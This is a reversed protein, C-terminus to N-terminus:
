CVAKSAGCQHITEARFHGYGIQGLDASEPGAVALDRAPFTNERGPFRSGRDVIQDLPSGKPEAIKITALPLDQTKGEWAGPQSKM